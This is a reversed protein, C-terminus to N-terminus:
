TNRLRSGIGSLYVRLYVLDDFYIAGKTTLLHRVADPDVYVGHRELITTITVYNPPDMYSLIQDCDFSVVHWATMSRDGVRTSM